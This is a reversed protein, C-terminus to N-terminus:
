CVRSGSGAHAQARRQALDGRGSMVLHPIMAAAVGAAIAVAVYAAAALGLWRYYSSQADAVRSGVIDTVKEPFLTENFREIRTDFENRAGRLNSTVNSGDRSRSM